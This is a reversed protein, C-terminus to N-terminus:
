QQIRDARIQLQKWVVDVVGTSPHSSECFLDVSKVDATGAEASYILEFEDSEPPAMEWTVTAGERRMRLRGSMLETLVHESDDLRNGAEDLRVHHAAFAPPDDPFARRCHHLITGQADDLALRLQIGSGFGSRPAALEKLEFEATVEFDGGLRYNRSAVTLGFVQGQGTPTKLEIGDRMRIVYRDGNSEPVHLWNGGIPTESLDLDLQQSAPGFLEAADVFEHARISMSDWVVRMGAVQDSAAARILVSQIDKSGTAFEELVEFEGSGEPAFLFSMIDGRRIIRMRGSSDWKWYDRKFWRSEGDPSRGHFAAALSHNQNPFQRREFQVRSDYEDVFRLHVEIGAGWAEAPPTIELGSFSADVQFDGRLGFNPRVGITTPKPDGAPLRMLLGEASPEILAGIETGEARMAGEDYVSGTFDASWYEPAEDDRLALADAPNPALQQEELPPLSRPWDGRHLISRAQLQNRDAYHFLGFVRLNTPAIPREYVLVDNLTLTVTEGIVALKVKNWEGTELPLQEPGRRYETEVYHNDPRLATRDHMGDTLWHEQVGDERLLFVLRDLAPHCEIRGPDYQFEYEIEGDELLPRHYRLISEVNMGSLGPRRQGILRSGEVRWDPNDGTVTEDYYDYVWQSLDNRSLLDIQEPIEPNGTIQLHRVGGAYGADSFVNLWPDPQDPLQEQHLEQDNVISTYVGDKVVVRYNFWPSLAGLKPDLPTESRRFRGFGSIYSELTYRPATFLGGAAIQTERWGFSTLRCNVEYDGRLPVAFYVADTEHQAYRLLEGPQYQWHSPTRGEGRSSARALPVSTWQDAASNGIQGVKLGDRLAWGLGRISRVQSNFAGDGPQGQHLQQDDIYEMMEIAIDRTEETLVARSAAVVSPWRHYLAFDDRKRLQAFLEVLWGRAQEPEDRELDILALVALRGRVHNISYLPMQEALDYLEDLRDLQGAVSVLELLPAVLNGGIEIRQADFQQRADLQEVDSANMRSVPESPHTPTTAAYCRVLSVSKGPMAWDMLFSYRQELPMQMSRQYAGYADLSVIRESILAGLARGDSNSRGSQQSSTVDAMLEAPIEAPWDGTLVGNRVRSETQDKYHFFGFLRDNNLDLAHQYVPEGNLSVRVFGDRLEVRAQNWEGSQLPLPRPGVQEEVIVVRNDAALGTADMDGDTMWHLSVGDPELLFAVRGIAPFVEVKGPEYFFEYNIVDGNQMPRHYYIRSQVSEAASSSIRRGHLAGDRSGWDWEGGAALASEVEDTIVPEGSATQVNQLPNPQSEGYFGAIWGRLQEDGILEVERPIIPNGTLKLDTFVPNRGWDAHLALWPNYGTEDHYIRYGNAYFTTVGDRVAVTQRNFSGSRLFPMRHRESERMRGDSFVKTVNGWGHVEVSVGGYSINGEAHTGDQGNVSFEFDGTIPFRFFLNADHPGCVHNLMGNQAFWINPVTGESHEAATEYGAPNWFEPASTLLLDASAGGFRNRVTSAHAWRAHSRLPDNYIKRTFSILQTFIRSTALAFSRHQGTQSAFLHTFMPYPPRNEEQAAAQRVEDVLETIRQAIGQTRGEMLNVLLLLDAAFEVDNAALEGLRVLVEDIRDVERASEILLLSTSFLDGGVGGAPLRLGAAGTESDVEAFAPPPSDMPVFETVIRLHNPRSEPFSFDFLAEYRDEATLENLGRALAGSFGADSITGYDRSTSIDAREGLRSLGTEVDGARLLEFVVVGLQQKRLFLPYDGGYRQNNVQHVELFKQLMRRGQDADGLEFYTRSVTRVMSALTEINTGESSIAPTVNDVVRTVLPLAAARAEPVSLAPLAIHCALEAANQTTDQVLYRDLDEVHGRLAAGDNEALALQGLLVASQRKSRPRSAYEELDARLEEAHGSAVAWDALLQGVSGVEISAGAVGFQSFVVARQSQQMLVPRPYLFIEDQRNEPLVVSRLTQYVQEPPFEHEKWLENLAFLRVEIERLVNQHGSDSAGQPAVISLGGLSPSSGIMAGANQVSVPPGGGLARRVATLSLEQMDNEAGLQALELAYNVRELTSSTRPAEAVRIAPAALFQALVDNNAVNTAICVVAAFFLRLIRFGIERQSGIGILEMLSVVFPNRQM